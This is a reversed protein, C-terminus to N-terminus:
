TRLAPSDAADICVFGFVGQPPDHGLFVMPISEGLGALLGIAAADDSAWLGRRADQLAESQTAGSGLYRSPGFTVAWVKDGPLRGTDEATSLPPHTVNKPAPPM